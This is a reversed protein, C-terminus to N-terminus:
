AHHDAVVQGKCRGRSRGHEGCQSVGDQRLLSRMRMEFWEPRRVEALRAAANGPEVREFRLLSMDLDLDLDLDLELDVRGPTDRREGASLTGCVMTASLPTSNKDSAAADTAVLRPMPVAVVFGKHGISLAAMSDENM